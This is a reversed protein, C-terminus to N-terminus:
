KVEAAGEPPNIEEFPESGDNYFLILPACHHQTFAAEVVGLIKVHKGVFARLEARRDDTPIVHIRDSTVIDSGDEAESADHEFPEALKLIFENNLLTLRGYIYGAEAPAMLALLAATFLTRTM